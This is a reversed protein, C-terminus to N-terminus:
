ADSAGQETPKGPPHSHAATAGPSARQATAATVGTPLSDLGRFCTLTFSEAKGKREGLACLYFTALSNFFAWRCRQDARTASRRVAETRRAGRM